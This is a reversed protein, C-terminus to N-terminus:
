SGKAQNQPFFSEPPISIGSKIVTIDPNDSQSIRKVGIVSETGINVNEDIISYDVTAGKGIKVGNMIVSDRVIAEPAIYVDSSIVSNQVTGHIECGETIISNSIYANEGIYQPPLATNRFFIRFNRDYLNFLPHEGLLDMNSEYLSKLTGVDRWYGDFHYSYMPRGETLMMPIINKGFDNDSSKNESDKILYRILIDTDFIYIGMSATTSTPHTPKESFDLIKGDSNSTVIGFRSAESIPVDIVSVTCVSGSRIHFDLMNRYNMKYIHDASLILVQEPSYREIFRLNQYVANATGSYFDSSMKAQYPPLITVGGFARDLDWPEGNGIYENLVLPQYQTLVGITDIGSNICNSLAFDIIRYKGGFQVAPKAITETLSHLRSGHGGALLMAIWKKKKYINKM